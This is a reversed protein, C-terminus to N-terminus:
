ISLGEMGLKKAEMKLFKLYRVAKELVSSTDLQDGDPIIGRLVTVV